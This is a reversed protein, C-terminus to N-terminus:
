PSCQLEDPFGIRFALEPVRRRTVEAAVEERLEGAIETLRALAAERDIGDHTPVLTVQVRSASPAPTVSTLILEDILPDDLEALAYTLADFV